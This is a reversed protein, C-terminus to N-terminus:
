KKNKNKMLEQYERTFMPPVALDNDEKYKYCSNLSLLVASICILKIFIKM